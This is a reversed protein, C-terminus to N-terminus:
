SSSTDPQAVRIFEVTHEGRFQMGAAEKPTIVGLLLWTWLEIVRFGTDESYISGGAPRPNIELIRWNGDKDRRYQVSVIGHFGLKEALMRAHEAMPHDDTIRQADKEVLKTRAAHVLPQGQWCLVDISVEPGPLWEMMLLRKVNEERWFALRKLFGKLGAKKKRRQRKAELRLETFYTEPHMRRRDPDSFALVTDERLHWYGLGNVGVVPKICVEQGLKRRRKYERRVARPGRVETAEARTPDNGMWEDFKAKDDVLRFVDPTAPAHVTCDLQALADAYVASDRVWLADIGHEAILRNAETIAPLGKKLRPFALVRTDPMNQEPATIIVLEIGAKLAAQQMRTLIAAGSFQREVCLVYPQTTAVQPQM